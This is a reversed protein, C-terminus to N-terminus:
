SSKECVTETNPYLSSKLSKKTNKTQKNTQKTPKTKNEKKENLKKTNLVSKM